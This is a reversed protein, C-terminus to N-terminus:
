CAMKILNFVYDRIYELWFHVKTWDEPHILGHLFFIQIHFPMRLASKFYVPILRRSGISHAADLLHWGQLLNSGSSHQSCPLTYPIPSLPKPQFIGSRGKRQKNGWILWRVGRFIVVSSIEHLLSDSIIHLSLRCMHLSPLICTFIALLYSLM